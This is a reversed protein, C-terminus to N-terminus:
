DGAASKKFSDFDSRLRVEYVGGHLPNRADALQVLFDGRAIRVTQPTLGPALVADEFIVSEPTITWTESQLASAAQIVRAYDGGGWYLQIARRSDPQKVYTDFAGMMKRLSMDPTFGSM